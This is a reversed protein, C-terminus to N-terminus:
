RHVDKVAVKITVYIHNRHLLVTLSQFSNMHTTMIITPAIVILILSIRYKHPQQVAKCKSTHSFSDMQVKTCHHNVMFYLINQGYFLHWRNEELYSDILEPNNIKHVEQVQKLEM